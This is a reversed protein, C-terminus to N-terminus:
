GFPEEEEKKRREKEFVVMFLDSTSAEPLL